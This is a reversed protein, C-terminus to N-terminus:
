DSGAAGIGGRLIHVRATGAGELLTAASAARTGTACYIVLHGSDPLDCHGDQLQRLPLNIAGALHGAAFEEPDRVDVWVADPLARAQELDIQEANPTSRTLVLGAADRGCGACDARPTIRLQRTAMDRGDALWLRGSLTSLAPGGVLLKLAETAQVAGAMGVLPGLVGAEACNPVWGDPASPFLCRLCPGSGPLFVTVMAEMGTASGYVLPVGFKLGADAALYKTPFNDSGDIVVDAHEFLTKVNHLDLRDVVAEIRVASNLARLREAAAQAKPRGLENETFLVQRQLNSLEVRDPDVIRLEGVGAAALYPLAGSGLGGAGICLVSAAALRAQGADGIDSLLTQRAYRSM